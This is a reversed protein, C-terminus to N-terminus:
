KKLRLLLIGIIFLFLPILITANQYLPTTTNVVQGTIAINNIFFGLSAGILLLAAAPTKEKTKKYPHGTAEQYLKKIKVDFKGALKRLEPTNNQSLVLDKKAQFNEYAPDATMELLFPANRGAKKADKLASISAKATDKIMSVLLNRKKKEFM